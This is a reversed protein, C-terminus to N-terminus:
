RECLGALSDALRDFGAAFSPMDPFLCDAGAEYLAKDPIPGTNVAVTYIGAAVGAQVGMPANEVVIAEGAKVGAKHLGMLYPEPHPKGHKVDYATVMLEPRFIRPYARELKELLSIQGSGTVLVPILGREKVRALLEPAGPMPEVEPLSNFHRSKEDYIRQVEEATADRGFERRFFLNLTGAGTCGEYLYFEERRCDIGLASITRYWALTHNKMSDFLVGDMDFLVAKLNLREYSHKEVFYPLLSAM